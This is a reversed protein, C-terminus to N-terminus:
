AIRPPLEKSIKFVNFVNTDESRRFLYATAILSRLSITQHPVFVVRRSVKCLAIRSYSRTLRIYQHYIGNATALQLPSIKNMDNDVSKRTTAISLKSSPLQLHPGM